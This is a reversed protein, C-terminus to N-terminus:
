DEELFLKNDISLVTAKAIGCICENNNEKEQLFKIMDEIANSICWTNGNHRYEIFAKDWTSPVTIDIPINININLKAKKNILVCDKEHNTGIPKGCYFCVDKDSAPRKAKETVKFKKAM